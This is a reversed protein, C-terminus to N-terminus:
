KDCLIRLTQQFTIAIISGSIIMIPINIIEIPTVSWHSSTKSNLGNLATSFIYISGFLGASLIITKNLM